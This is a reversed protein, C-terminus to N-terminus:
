QTPKVVKLDRWDETSTINKFEAQQEILNILGPSNKSEARALSIFQQKNGALALSRFVRYQAGYNDPQLEYAKLFASSAEQHKGLADLCVGYNFWSTAFHPARGIIEEIVPLAEAWRQQTVLKQYQSVIDTNQARTVTTLTSLALVLLLKSPRM